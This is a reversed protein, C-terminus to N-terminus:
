KKHRYERAGDGWIRGADRDNLYTDYYDKPIDKPHNELLPGAEMLGMWYGSKLNKTIQDNHYKALELHVVQRKKSKDFVAADDEEGKEHIGDAAEITWNCDDLRLPGWLKGEIIAEKEGKIRVLLTDRTYVVDLQKSSTVGKPLLVFVDVFNM